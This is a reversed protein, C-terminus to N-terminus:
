CRRRSILHEEQSRGWSCDHQYRFLANLPELVTSAKPLFKRCINLVGLYAQLETINKPSLVREIAQINDESPHVGEQDVRFGLYTIEKLGWQCKKVNLTLGADELISLVQRVRNDHISKTEGSILIDDFFM